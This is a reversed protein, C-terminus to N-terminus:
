ERGGQGNFELHLSELSHLIRFSDAIVPSWSDVVYLLLLDLLDLFQENIQVTETETGVLIVTEKSTM